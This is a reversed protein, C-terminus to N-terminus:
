KTSLIIHILNVCIFTVKNKGYIGKVFVYEGFAAASGEQPQADEVTMRSGQLTTRRVPIGAGLIDLLPTFTQRM